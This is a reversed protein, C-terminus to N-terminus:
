TRKQDDNDEPELSVAWVETDKYPHMMHVSGLDEDKDCQVPGDPFVASFVEDDIQIFNETIAVFGSHKSLKKIERQVEWMRNILEENTMM